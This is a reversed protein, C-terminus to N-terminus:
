INILIQSGLTIKKVFKADIDKQLVTEDTNKFHSVSSLKIANLVNTNQVVELMSETHIKVM